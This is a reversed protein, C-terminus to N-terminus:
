GNPLSTPQQVKAQRAERLGALVITSGGGGCCSLLLSSGVCVRTAFVICICFRLVMCCGLCQMFRGVSPHVVGLGLECEVISVTGYGDGEVGHGPFIIIRRFHTM